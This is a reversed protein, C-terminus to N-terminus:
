EERWEPSAVAGSSLCSRWVCLCGGREEWHPKTHRGVAVFKLWLPRTCSSPPCQTCAGRQPDNENLLQNNIHNGERERVTLCVNALRTHVYLCLFLRHILICCRACLVCVYDRHFTTTTILPTQLTPTAAYECVKMLLCAIRSSHVIRARWKQWDICVCAGLLLRVHVCM